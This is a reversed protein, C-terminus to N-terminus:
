EGFEKPNVVFRTTPRGGSPGTPIPISRVWGYEDLLDLAEKVRVPDDGMPSWNKHTVDRVTFSKDLRGSRLGRIIAKAGDVTNVSGAHYIRQAHSELFDAWALASLVAVDGVPGTGGSALHHILALAPVLKRFKAIHSELAPHLEDSRIRGELTRRWEKFCEIGDDSFRLFPSDRDFRDFEAGVDEARLRDLRDFADFAVQRYQADPERDHETWDPSMDPWVTMSFRQLLGDDTSNGGMVGRVYGQMLAPQTSGLVSLTVSPVFLNTGRGIRDFVYSESGNWGTLYFGRAESSDERDLARILSMLEDRHVLLGNTNKRLIEGLAQYSGDNTKYRRATPEEEKPSIAGATDAKPNDKLLKKLAAKEADRRLEREIEGDEWEEKAQLFADNAMAELRALPKLAAGVAPSKMVGPRGIICGWLNPVVTWDDQRMPRIGVKRGIVAGAAIMAPVAIFEPPTQMRESIDEVWPKFAAPLMDCDFAKVPLLGGPLPKATPWIDIDQGSDLAQQFANATAANM